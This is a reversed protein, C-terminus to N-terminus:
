NSRIEYIEMDAMRRHRDRKRRSGVHCMGAKAMVRGSAPNSRLHEAVIRIMGLHEFGFDILARAAESCYGNGWYSEGIWYGLEGRTRNIWTLTIAGVLTQTASLSIAWTGCTRLEWLRAHSGIWQAAVGAEYPYPLTLTTRSVNYNNALRSVDETDDLTFRRLLLRPTEIEPQVKDM